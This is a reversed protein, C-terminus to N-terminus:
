PAHTPASSLIERTILIFRQDFPTSPTAPGFRAWGDDRPVVALNLLKQEFRKRLEPESANPGACFALVRPRKPGLKTVQDPSLLPPGLLSIIVDQDGAQRLLDFFDGPPVAAVRLPDLKLLRLASINQKAKQLAGQVGALQARNAPVEFPQEDRAIVVLRGGESLLRLAETALREGAQEHPLRDIAPPRPNLLLYLSLWCGATVVTATILAANSHRM